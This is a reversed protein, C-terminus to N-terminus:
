CHEKDRLRIAKAAVRRRGGPRQRLIMPAAASADITEVFAQGGSPAVGEDSAPDIQGEDVASGAELILVREHFSAEVTDADPATV